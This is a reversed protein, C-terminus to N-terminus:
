NQLAVTQRIYFLAGLLLLGLFILKLAEGMLEPVRTMEEQQM